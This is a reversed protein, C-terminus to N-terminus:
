DYYTVTEKISDNWDCGSVFCPSGNKSVDFRHGNSCQYSYTITNGDHSHYNGDEDYFPIYGALTSTGGFSQITSKLGQERCKECIM